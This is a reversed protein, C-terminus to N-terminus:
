HLNQDHMSCLDPTECCIDEDEEVVRRHKILKLRDTFKRQQWRTYVFGPRALEERSLMLDEVRSSLDEVVAVEEVGDDCGDAKTDLVRELDKCIDTMDSKLRREDQKLKQRVIAQTTSINKFSDCIVDLKKNVDRNMAKEAKKENRKMKKKKRLNREVNTKNGKKRASVSVAYNKANKGM